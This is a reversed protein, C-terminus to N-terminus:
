DNKECIIIKKANNKFWDAGIFDIDQVLFQYKPFKNKAINIEENLNGGKLLIVKGDKKLIKDSWELIEITKAVARSFVFDYTNTLNENLQLNEARVNLVKFNKYGTHNALMDTIKVKKKISDNLFMTIDPRAIKIPIGPLGGGTGIDICRAKYQLDIYKLITLSHLIHRSLIADEDKRSILNVKKNWYLLENAYREIAKIQEKELVIGNTSCITWFESIDM